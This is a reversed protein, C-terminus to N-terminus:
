SFCIPSGEIIARLRFQNEKLREQSRLIETHDQFALIVGTIKKNDDLCPLVRLQYTHGNAEVFFEEPKGVNLVRDLRENLDSSEFSSSIRSIEQGIDAPSITFLKHSEPNYRLIRKKSDLIILPSGISNQVNELSLNTFRLESQKANLEDNLTTLEENSSQLEENTTELEESSAQLEENTSSLEENLSQLEENSVGLEEVVTQLHERTLFLEQELEMVRQVLPGEDSPSPSPKETTQIPEFCVLFLQRASTESYQSEEKLPQVVLSFSEIKSGTSSRYTRSRHAKQDQSVKRILLPVEVGISKPLLSVLRFDAQSSFFGLYASVDGIIQVINCESDVVVGSLNHSKLLKLYSLETLAQGQTPRSPRFSIPRSLSNPESPPLGRSPVDLKQYIRTTKNIPEFLANGASTTESKGLVLAGDIQLSYHFIEMIKKQLDLNFYILVNRCSILDLKVFPPNRTLDQRAFVVTERLRKSVEFGDHRLDFYKELINQPIRECDKQSYHGSRGEQIADQDLDTAFVKIRLHRRKRDIEELFLIALTYAEEGTACGACWVRIEEGDQKKSIIKEIIPDLSKFVEPDRFFSTVSVLLDQALQALEAPNDKIRELYKESTESGIHSMRKAIRRSITSKKYKSFDTGQCKKVQDLIQSIGDTDMQDTKQKLQHEEILKELDRAMQDPPLIADIDGTNVASNPMGDYKASQDDQALTLGGAAKIAQIGASGDSGTGSLIIGVAQKRYARALSEFFDNISPKPRTENGALSLAISQGNVDIDHNPPVVYITQPALSKLDKATVVPRRSQRQLLDVMMSKAHPALHQAVIIPPNFSEPLNSIFLSLAELGGASAGVGICWKDEFNTQNLKQSM